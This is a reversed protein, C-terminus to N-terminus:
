IQSKQKSQAELLEVKKEVQRVQLMLDDYAIRMEREIEPDQALLRADKKTNLGDTTNWNKDSAFSATTTLKDAIYSASVSPAKAHFANRLSDLNILITTCEDELFALENEIQTVTFRNDKIPRDERRAVQQTSGEHEHTQIALRNENRVNIISTNAKRQRNQSRKKPEQNTSPLTTSSSSLRRRKKKSHNPETSLISLTDIYSPLSSSVSAHEIATHTRNQSEPQNTSLGNTELPLEGLPSHQEFYAHNHFHIDLNNTDQYIDKRQLFSTDQSTQPTPLHNYFSM